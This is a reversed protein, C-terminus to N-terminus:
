EEREKEPIEIVEQGGITRLKEHPGLNVQQPKSRERDPGEPLKRAPIEPVKRYPRDDHPGGMPSGSGASDPFNVGLSLPASLGVRPLVFGAITAVAVTVAGIVGLVLSGTIIAVGVLVSGALFVAVVVWPFTRETRDYSTM